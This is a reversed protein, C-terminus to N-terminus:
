LDTHLIHMSINPYLPNLFPSFIKRELRSMSILARRKKREKKENEKVATPAPYLLIVVIWQVKDELSLKQQLASTM